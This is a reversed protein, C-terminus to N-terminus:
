FRSFILVSNESEECPYKKCFAVNPREPDLLLTDTSLQMSEKINLLIRPYNTYSPLSANASRLLILFFTRTSRHIIATDLALIDDITLYQALISKLIDDDLKFFNMCDVKAANKESKLRGSFGYWVGFNNIFNSLSHSSM